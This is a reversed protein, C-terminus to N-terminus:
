GQGPLTRSSALTASLKATSFWSRGRACTVSSSHRMTPPPTERVTVKFVHAIVHKAPDPDAHLERAAEGEGQYFQPPNGETLTAM